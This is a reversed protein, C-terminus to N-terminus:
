SSAFLPLRVVLCLEENSYFRGVSATLSPLYLLGTLKNFCFPIRPCLFPMLDGLNEKKLLVKFDHSLLSSYIIPDDHNCLNFLDCPPTKSIRLGSEERCEGQLVGGKQRLPAQYVVSDGLLGRAAKERGGEIGWEARRM